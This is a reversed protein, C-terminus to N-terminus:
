GNNSEWNQPNSLFRRVDEVRWATVRAGLHIPRPFRGRAIWDWLASKSIPIPGEPAILSRQRVFGAVPLGDRNDQSIDTTESM